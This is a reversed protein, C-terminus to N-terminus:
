TGAAGGGAGSGSVRSRDGSCASARRVTARRSRTPQVTSAAAARGLPASSPAVDLAGVEAREFSAPSSRSARRGRRRTAARERSAPPARRRSPQSSAPSRAATRRRTSSRWRGRRGGRRGARRVTRGPATSGRRGRCRSRGPPRLSMADCRTSGRMRIDSRRSSARNPETPTEHRIEPWGIKVVRAVDRGVDEAAGDVDRVEAPLVDGAVHARVGAGLLRDPQQQHQRFSTAARCIMESISRSPGVPM